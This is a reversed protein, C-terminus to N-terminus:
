QRVASAQEHVFQELGRPPHQVGQPLRELRAPDHQDARLPGHGVRRAHLQHGRGVRAGAAAARAVRGAPAPGILDLAVPRAQGTGQQVADVDLDFEVWDGVVCHDPCGVALGGVDNGTPDGRGASQGLLPLSLDGVPVDGDTGQTGRCGRRGQTPQRARDGAEAQRCTGEVPAQPHGARDGVQVPVLGDGHVRHVLGHGVAQHRRATTAHRRCGAGSHASTAAAPM